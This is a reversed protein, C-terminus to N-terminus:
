RAAGVPWAQALDAFRDDYGTEALQQWRVIPVEADRVARGDPGPAFIRSRTVRGDASGTVELVEMVSRRRGLYPNKRVFVVFDVAAGILAHTVEFPMGEYQAAYTALRGFVDVADRSHITSLSGDNGQSMAALMEVVEPGLVEGVIVRSPNQRRTRRVLQQITLGGGGDPSALVEEMEVVDPHLQPHRRLGLEMAREVTILREAPDICHILARLLTTKGADTAGAVMINCRARVAATLFAALTPDVSGLELLTRPGPGSPVPAQPPVSALFMLPFRNRRISIQPRETATMIASLRSGDPLRLDLEPSTPTFPRANVGAYSGLTRVIDVLEDDSAAVARGPLKRGDAYSVWVEDCGNIDINEVEPHDLLEQLAGAGFMAADIAEILRQDYSPDPLELGASIREQMYRAVVGTATALALQREDAPALPAEGALERRQKSRTLQDAVEGQLRSVLPYDLGVPTIMPLTM